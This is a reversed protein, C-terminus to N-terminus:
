VVVKMVFGVTVVKGGPELMDKMVRHIQNRDEYKGDVKLDYMLVCWTVTLKQLIIPVGLACWNVLMRDLFKREHVVGDSCDLGSRHGVEVNGLVAVSTPRDADTSRNYFDLGVKAGVDESSGIAGREMKIITRGRDFVSVTKNFFM